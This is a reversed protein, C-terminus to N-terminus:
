MNLKGKRNFIRPLTSIVGYFREELNEILSVYLDSSFDESLQNLTEQALSKVEADTDESCGILIHVTQSICKPM